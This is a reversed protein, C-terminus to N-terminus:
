AKRRREYRGQAGHKDPVFHIDWDQHPCVNFPYESVFSPCVEYIVEDQKVRSLRRNCKECKAETAKIWEYKGPRLTM